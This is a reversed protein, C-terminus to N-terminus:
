FFIVESIHVGLGNGVTQESGTYCVGFTVYSIVKRRMYRNGIGEKFFQQLCEKMDSTLSFYGTPRADIKILQAHTFNDLKEIIRFHLINESVEAVPIRLFVGDNVEVFKKRL